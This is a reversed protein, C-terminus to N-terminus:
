FIQIFHRCPNMLMCYKIFALNNVFFLTMYIESDNNIIWFTIRQKM